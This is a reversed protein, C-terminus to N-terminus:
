EVILTGAVKDVACTFTVKGKRTPTFEVEVTLELPLPIKVTLDKVTFDTACKSEVKRTVRLKVPAGAKVRIEKPLFGAATVQLDFTQAPVAPHVQGEDDDCEECTLAASGLLFSGVTILGLMARRM